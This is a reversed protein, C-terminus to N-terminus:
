INFQNDYTHLIKIAWDFAKNAEEGLGDHLKARLNTKLMDVNKFELSRHPGKIITKIMQGGYMDGMHWTYLHALVREDNLDTIYQYYDTMERKYRHPWKDDTMDKYDLYLFHSREIGPLDDLYGKSRAVSEIANYWLMKGHTYDAWVDDPMNKAFIAKMFPTHEAETHKDKTIEKLSM